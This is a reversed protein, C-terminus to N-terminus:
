VNLFLNNNINFIVGYLICFVGCDFVDMEYVKVNGELKEGGGWICEWSEVDM